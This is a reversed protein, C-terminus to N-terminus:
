GKKKKVCGNEVNKKKSCMSLKGRNKFKPEKIM